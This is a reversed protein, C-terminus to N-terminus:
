IEDILLGDPIKGPDESICLGANPDRWKAQLGQATEILVDMEAPSLQCVKALIENLPDNM